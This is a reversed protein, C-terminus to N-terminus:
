PKEMLVESLSNEKSARLWNRALGGGLFIMGAHFGLLTREMNSCGWNVLERAVGDLSRIFVRNRTARAEPFLTDSIAAKELAPDLIRGTEFFAM